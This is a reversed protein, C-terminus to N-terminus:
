QSNQGSTRRHDRVGKNFLTFTTKATADEVRMTMYRPKFDPAEKLYHTYYYNRDITKVKRSCRPGCSYYWGEGEMIAVITAECTHRLVEQAGSLSHAQRTAQKEKFMQDNVKLKSEGLLVAPVFVEETVPVSPRGRKRAPVNGQNVIADGGLLGDMDEGIIRRRWAGM